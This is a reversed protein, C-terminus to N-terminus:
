SGMSSQRFSEVFVCTHAWQGFSAWVAGVGIASKAVLCVRITHGVSIGIIMEVFVVAGRGRVFARTTRTLVEKEENQSNHDGNCSLLQDVGHHRHM